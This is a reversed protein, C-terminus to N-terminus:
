IYKNIIFELYANSYMCCKRSEEKVFAINDKAFRASFHETMQSRITKRNKINDLKFDPTIYDPHEQVYDRECQVISNILVYKKVNYEFAKTILKYVTEPRLFASFVYVASEIDYEHIKFAPRPANVLEESKQAEIQVSPETIIEEKDPMNREINNTTDVSQDTQKSDQKQETNTNIISDLYEDVPSEEDLINSKTEVAEAANKEEAEKQKKKLADLRSM